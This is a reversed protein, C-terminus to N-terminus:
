SRRCARETLAIGGAYALTGGPQEVNPDSGNYLGVVEVISHPSNSAFILNKGLTYAYVVGHQTNFKSPKLRSGYALKLETITACPGVGAATKYSSNWTTIVASRSKKPPFHISLGRKAYVLRKWTSLAPDSFPQQYAPKGLLKTYARATLGIRLGGISEQTIASTGAAAITAVVMLAFAMPIAIWRM